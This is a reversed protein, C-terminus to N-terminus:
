TRSNQLLLLLLLVTDCHGSKTSSEARSRRGFVIVPISGTIRLWHALLLLWRTLVSIREMRMCASCPSCAFRRARNRSHGGAAAAGRTCHGAHQRRAGRRRMRPSKGARSPSARSILVYVRKHLFSIVIRDVVIVPIGQAATRHSSRTPRGEVNVPPIAGEARARATVHRRVDGLQLPAFKAPVSRPAMLPLAEPFGAAAWIRICGEM